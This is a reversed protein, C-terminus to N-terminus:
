LPKTVTLSKQSGQKARLKPKKGVLKGKLKFVDGAGAKKKGVTRYGKKGKAKLQIKVKGNTPAIGWFVAKKKGKKDVVLPFQLAKVAPKPREDLFYIGTQFGVLAPQNPDYPSDRLQLWIVNSAGQKWLIYMADAMAQAHAKLSLAKNRGKEPPNSEYWTETSWLGHKRAGGATNAKEAARLIKRLDGMDSPTADDPHAAAKQPKDGPSNIANHAFIDFRPQAAGTCGGTKKLKKNLCFVQRWFYLPRMKTGGPDSGFPSTGGVVVQNASSVSKVGDYFGNLLDRYIDPSAPKKGNWQPVIYNDLNPENWAEWYRVQPLIPGARRVTDEAEGADRPLPPIPLGGGGGSGGSGGGGSPLPDAYTGSYRRALAVAFKNFEGPNPRYVGGRINSPRNQGEAWAPANLALLIIELGAADASQVAADLEDWNYAPDAPDTPNSPQSPAVSSWYVNIRVFRARSDAARAFWKSRVAPDRNTFLNDANRDDAFGFDFSRAASAGSPLLLLAVFSAILAVLLSGGVLHSRRPGAGTSMVEAQGEM